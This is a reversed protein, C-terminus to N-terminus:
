VQLLSVVNQANSNAQALIAEGAQVLINEVSLSQLEKAMDTDRIRSEAATTNEAVNNANAISHELRNQYTGFKSRVTNVKVFAGTLMDIAKTALKETKVSLKKIGM